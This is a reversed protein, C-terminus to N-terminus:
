VGFFKESETSWILEVGVWFEVSIVSDSESSGPSCM